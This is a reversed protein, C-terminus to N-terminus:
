FPDSQANTKTSITVVFSSQAISESPDRERNYSPVLPLVCLLMYEMLLRRQRSNKELSEVEFKIGVLDYTTMQIRNIGEYV